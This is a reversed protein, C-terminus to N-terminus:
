PIQNVTYEAYFKIQNFDLTNEFSLKILFFM